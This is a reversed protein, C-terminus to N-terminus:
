KGESIHWAVHCHFPWVGPNDLDIQIVLYGSPQILQTDRRQPNSPNVITKNDWTGSGEALVQMNHGHIHMPHSAPFGVSTMVIRVTSNTGLNYVAREPPYDNNGLKAELLTPDNYDGYFTINNMYWVFAGSANYGGTMIFNLTVTPEKMPIAFAPVTTNLPENNCNLPFLYRTSNISSTTIPPISTDADEYYIAATTEYKVGTNM